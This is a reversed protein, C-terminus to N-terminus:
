LVPCVRTIGNDTSSVAAKYFMFLATSRPKTPTAVESANCSTTRDHLVNLLVVSSRYCRGRTLLSDWCSVMSSSIRSRLM